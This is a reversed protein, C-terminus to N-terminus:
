ARGEAPGGGARLGPGGRDRVGGGIGSAEESSKIPRVSADPEDSNGRAPHRRRRPLPAGADQPM